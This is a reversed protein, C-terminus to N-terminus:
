QGGGTLAETIRECDAALLVQNDREVTQSGTVALCHTAQNDVVIVASGTIVCSFVARCPTETFRNDAVHLVPAYAQTGAWTMGDGVETLVQNDDLAASDTSAVAVAASPPDVGIEPVQLTVQNGHFLVRGDPLATGTRSPPAVLADNEVRCQALSTGVAAGFRIAADSMVPTRGLDLIFVAAGARSFALPQGALGDAVLTNDAVSIPGLGVALLAQGAPTVVNNDHIAVAGVVLLAVMGGQYVSPKDEAGATGNDTVLNGWVRLDQCTHVFIGCARGADAGNGAVLNDHIRVSAVDRLTIGGVAQPEFRPNAPQRACSRIENRGITLGRVGALVDGGAAVTTVGSGEMREIRNAVVAARVVGAGRDSPKEQGALGGLAVGPGRGDAITNDEVLVDASGERVWLGGVSLRNGAVRAGIAQLAVGWRGALRCNEVTLAECGTAHVANASPDAQVGLDSLTFGACGELVFAPADSPAIVQARDGCGAITLGDQRVVVPQALRYTGPLVCVRGGDPLSDVADQIDDFDASDTDDGVTVDCCCGGSPLETLPPFQPACPEVRTATWKGKDDKAWTVLALRCYHHTIFRPPQDTFGEVQNIATRAPIVWADGTRFPGGSFSVQVGDELNIWTPATAPVPIKIPDGTQDWRRVRPRFESKVNHASVDASLTLKRRVEDVHDVKAMTGHTGALETLDSLVEVRDGVRFGLAKDRGLSGVHVIKSEIKEVSALISGNDRSWVFTATGAAGPTHVEVRYLRNELGRFGAGPTPLCADDPDRVPEAQASMRGASPATQREFEADQGSCGTGRFNKLVRVQAVTQVRTATDPGGLAVERLYPDEIATVHRRWVDVFVLDTRGAAPDLAEPLPAPRDPQDLYGIEEDLECLIGDVYLRGRSIRLDTGDDTPRVQFGPAHKPAGCAGITDITQRRWRRDLIDAAENDDADLEVRGQQKLVAAYHRRPQDSFRTFDGRM